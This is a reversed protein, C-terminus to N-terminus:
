LEGCIMCLGDRGVFIEVCLWGRGVFIEVCLGQGGVCLETCDVFLGDLGICLGQGGVCLGICDACLRDWGCLGWGGKVIEVCSSAEGSWRESFGKLASTIAEFFQKSLATHATNEGGVILEGLAVTRELQDVWVECLIGLDFFAKQVLDADKVRKLVGANDTAVIDFFVTLASDEEICHFPDVTGREGFFEM